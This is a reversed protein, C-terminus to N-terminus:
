KTDWKKFLIKCNKIVTYVHHKLFNRISCVELLGEPKYISTAEYMYRYVKFLMQFSITVKLVPSHARFGTLRLQMQSYGDCEKHEHFPVSRQHVKRPISVSVYTSNNSLIYCFYSLVRNQLCDISLIQLPSYSFTLGLLVSHKFSTSSYWLTCVNM